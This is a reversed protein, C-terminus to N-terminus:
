CIVDSLMMFLDIMYLSFVILRLCLYSISLAYSILKFEFNEFIYSYWLIKM